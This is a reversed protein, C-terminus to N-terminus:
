LKNLTELTYNRDYYESWYFDCKVCYFLKMSEPGQVTSDCITGTIRACQKGYNPYAPCVGLEEAKAGGAERGCKKFEWCNM